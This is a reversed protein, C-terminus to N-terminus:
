TELLVLEESVFLSLSLPLSASHKPIVGKHTELDCLCIEFSCLQLEDLPINRPEHGRPAGTNGAHHDAPQIARQGGAIWLVCVCM